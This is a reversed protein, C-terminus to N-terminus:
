HAQEHKGSLRVGAALESTRENILVSLLIHQVKKQCYRENKTCAIKESSESSSISAEFKL